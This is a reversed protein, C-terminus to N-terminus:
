YCVCGGVPRIPRFVCSNSELVFLHDLFRHVRGHIRLNVYGPGAPGEHRLGPLPSPRGNRRGRGTWMVPRHSLVAANYPLISRPYKVENRYPMVVLLNATPAPHLVVWRYLEYLYAQRATLAGLVCRLAPDALCGRRGNERQRDLRRQQPVVATPRDDADQVLCLQNGERQVVLDARRADTVEQMLSLVASDNLVADDAPTRGPVHVRLRPWDLVRAAVRAPDPLPPPGQAGFRHNAADLVIDGDLLNLLRNFSRLLHGLLRVTGPLPRLGLRPGVLEWLLTQELPQRVNQSPIGHRMDVCYKNLFRQKPTLPRRGRGFVALTLRGTNWDYLRGQHLVLDGCFLDGATEDRTEYLAALVGLCQAEDDGDCPPEGAFIREFARRVPDCVAETAFLRFFPVEGRRGFTRAHVIAEIGDHEFQYLACYAHVFGRAFDAM